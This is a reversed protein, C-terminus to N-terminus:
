RGNQIQNVKPRNDWAKVYVKLAAFGQLDIVVSQGLKQTPIKYYTILKRILKRNKYKGLRRAADSVTIVSEKM